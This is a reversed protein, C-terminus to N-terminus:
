SLLNKDSFSQLLTWIGSKGFFEEDYELIYKKVEVFVKQKHKEMKLLEQVLNYFSATIKGKPLLPLGKKTRPFQAKVHILEIMLLFRFYLRITHMLLRSAIYMWVRLTKENVKKLRKKLDLVIDKPIKIQHKEILLDLSDKTTSNNFFLELKLKYSIEFNMKKVKNIYFQCAKKLREQNYWFLALNKPTLVTKKYPFLAYNELIISVFLKQDTKIKFDIAMWSLFFLRMEFFKSFPILVKTLSNWAVSQGCMKYKKKFEKNATLIRKRCKPYKKLLITEKKKKDFIELTKTFRLNFIDSSLKFKSKSFGHQKGESQSSLVIDLYASDSLKAFHDLAKFFIKEFEIYDFTDKNDKNEAM